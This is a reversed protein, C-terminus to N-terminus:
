NQAASDEPAVAFPPRCRALIAAPEETIPKSICDTCGAERARLIDREMMNASVVVIPIAATAPDSKLLRTLMLGDMGPLHVDMLILDPRTERLRDQAAEASEAEVIIFDRELIERFLKRNLPHDEVLLIIYM